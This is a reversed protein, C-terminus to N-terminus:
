PRPSTRLPPRGDSRLDGFMEGNWEIEPTPRRRERPEAYDLAAKYRAIWRQLHEVLNGILKM